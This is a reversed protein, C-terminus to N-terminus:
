SIGNNEKEEEKSATTNNKVSMIHRKTYPTRAKTGGKKPDTLIDEQQLNKITNGENRYKKAHNENLVHGGLKRLM